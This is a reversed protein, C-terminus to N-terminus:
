NRKKRDPILWSATFFVRRFLTDGGDHIDIPNAHSRIMKPFGTKETFYFMNAHFYIERALQMESMGTVMGSRIMKRAEERCTKKNLFEKKVNISVVTLAGDSEHM